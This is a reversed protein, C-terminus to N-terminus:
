FRVNIPPVWKPFDFPRQLLGGDSEWGFPLFPGLSFPRGSANATGTIGGTYPPQLLYSDSAGMTISAPPQPTAAGGTYKAMEHTPLSELTNLILNNM